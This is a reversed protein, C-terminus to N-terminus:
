VADFEDESSNFACRADPNGYNGPVIAVYRFTIGCPLAWVTAISDAIAEGTPNYTASAAAPVGNVTALPHVAMDAVTGTSLNNNTWGHMFARALVARNWRMADPSE